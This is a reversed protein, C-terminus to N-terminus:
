QVDCLVCLFNDQIGLTEAALVCLRLYPSCPLLTECDHEWLTSLGCDIVMEKWRKAGCETSGGLRDRLLTDSGRGCMIAPRGDKAYSTVSYPQVTVYTFEPERRRFETMSELPIYFATACMYRGDSLAKTTESATHEFQESSGTVPKANPLMAAAENLPECCLSAIKDGEAIGRHFFVPAAHGFVRCCSPLRVLTWDRLDPFSREASSKALLSGFGVIRVWEDPSCALPDVFGSDEM